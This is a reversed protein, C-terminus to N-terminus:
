EDPERMGLGELEPLQVQPPAIVYVVGGASGLWVNEFQRRDYVTRVEEDSALGHSAPDNCIVDGSEDFGVITLLHGSTEYGAGDLEGDRFSVTAVLPVGARLLEEAEVLSRLRTVFAVTGYRAAYATNFSWNGAGAYAYDFVGRAAHVVFPDPQGDDVWAYEERSPGRGWSALVMSTSTPSCWSEGGNDWQPYTGRHLQQSYTPVDLEVATRDRRAEHPIEHRTEAAGQPASGRSAMVAALRVSPVDASGVRGGVPRLLSVRLQYAAVTVGSAAELVDVRVSALGDDQGRVSTRHIEEDGESWRGLVYWGSMGIGDPSFRVEVELWSRGPTSANWSAILETAPVGSPVAPSIWAAWEYHRTGGDGHPDTYARCGAAEGFVLEQGRVTTGQHTGAAFDDPRRWATFGILRSV